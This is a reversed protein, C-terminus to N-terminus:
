EISWRETPPKEKGIPTMSHSPSAPNGNPMQTKLFGFNRLCVVAVPVSALILVMDVCLFFTLFARSGVFREPHQGIQVLMYIFYAMSACSLVIFSYMHPKREKRLGWYALILMAVSVLCSLVIHEILENVISKKAEETKAEAWWAVILLALYQISFGLFFFFDFKLLMMFIQYMKYRDRMALDAGIKNYIHWGFELYLKYALFIFVITSLIMVCIQTIEAWSSAHYASGLFALALKVSADETNDFLTLSQHYQIISYASMGLEFAVLAILQITNKQYIADVVLIVTFVQAIIFLVFYVLLSRANAYATALSEGFGKQNLREQEIISIENAVYSFIVSEFIIALLAQVIICLFIARTWRSKGFVQSIIGM